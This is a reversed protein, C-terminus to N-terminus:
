IKIKMRDLEDKAQESYMCDAFMQKKNENKGDLIYFIGGLNKYM